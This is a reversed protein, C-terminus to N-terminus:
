VITIHKENIKYSEIKKQVKQFYKKSVIFQLAREGIYPTLREKLFLLDNKKSVLLHSDKQFFSQLDKKSKVKSLDKLGVSSILLSKKNWKPAEKAKHFEKIFDSDGCVITVAKKFIVDGLFQSDGNSNFFALDGLQNELLNQNILFESANKFAPGKCQINSIEIRNSALNEKLSILGEKNFDKHYFCSYILNVGLVGLAEHQKLRLKDSCNIHFTIDNFDAQPKTQFRLGMWAHAFQSLNSQNKQAKTAATTAFAFFQTKDGRKQKLRKELLQYEHDLMTMLRDRCVYRNQKGYIADSFTMDYASMTKAITQSAFGAKFFYQATEQGAGIEAFSGYFSLDKNIKRTKNLTTLKSM